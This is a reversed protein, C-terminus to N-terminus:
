KIVILKHLIVKLHKALPFTSKEKPIYILEIFCKLSFDKSPYDATGRFWLFMSLVNWDLGKM